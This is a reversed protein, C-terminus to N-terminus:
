LTLLGHSGAQAHSHMPQSGTCPQSAPQSATCTGVRWHMGPQAPAWRSSGAPVWSDANGALVEHDGGQGWGTCCVQQQAGGPRLHGGGPGRPQLPLTSPPPAPPRSAQALLVVLFALSCLLRPRGAAASSCLLVTGGRRRRACLLLWGSAAGDTFVVVASASASRLLLVIGGGLCHAAPQLGGCVSVCWAAAWAHSAAPRSRHRLARLLRPAAPCGHLAEAVPCWSCCPLM